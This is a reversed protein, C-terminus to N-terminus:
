QRGEFRQAEAFEQTLALRAPHPHRQTHPLRLTPSSRADTGGGAAGCQQPRSQRPARQSRTPHANAAATLM